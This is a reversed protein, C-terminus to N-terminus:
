KKLIDLVTLYLTILLNRIYAGLKALEITVSAANM